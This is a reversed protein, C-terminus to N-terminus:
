DASVGDAPIRYKSMLRYLRNRDISLLSAARSKVGQTHLLARRIHEAVVEDYTIQGATGLQDSIRLYARADALGADSQAAATMPVVMVLAMLFLRLM